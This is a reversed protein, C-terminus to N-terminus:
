ARVYNAGGGAHRRQSSAEIPHARRLAAMVPMPCHRRRAPNGVKLSHGGSTLQDWTSSSRSSAHGEVLFFIFSLSFHMTIGRTAHHQRRRRTQRALCLVAKKHVTHCWWRPHRDRSACSRWTSCLHQRCLNDGRQVIKPSPALSRISGLM